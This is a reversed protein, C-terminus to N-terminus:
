KKKEIHKRNELIPQGKDNIGMLVKKSGVFVAHPLECSRCVLFFGEQRWDHSEKPKFSYTPQDFNLTEENKKM